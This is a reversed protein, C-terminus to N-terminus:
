DLWRPEEFGAYEQIAGYIHQVVWTRHVVLFCVGYPLRAKARGSSSTPMHNLTHRRVSCRDLGLLGLWFREIQEISLGNNTYVNISICIQDPEIHLSDTLFRRFLLVMRPDSNAFKACNRGKAGEAWYLMCGAHHLLDGDRAKARGAAQFQARRARCRAAWAAGRRRRAEPNQPGEPGRRNHAEQAATLEIDRTWALATAPSIELAAAIRKYPVGAGRLERAQRYLEPHRPGIRM